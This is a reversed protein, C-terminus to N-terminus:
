MTWPRITSRSGTHLVSSRSGRIEADIDAVYGGVRRPAAAYFDRWWHVMPDAQRPQRQRSLSAAALPLTALVLRADLGV